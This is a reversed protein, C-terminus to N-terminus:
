SCRTLERIMNLWDPVGLVLNLSLTKMLHSVIETTNQLDVCADSLFSKSPDETFEALDVVNGDLFEFDVRYSQSAKKRKTRRANDRQRRDTARLFQTNLSAVAKNM